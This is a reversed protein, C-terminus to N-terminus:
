AVRNREPTTTTLNEITTDLIRQLAEHTNFAIHPTVIVNPFTLLLHDSILNRLTELPYDKTVIEKEEIIEHEGELVDLGAGGIKGSKLGRILALTDVVGGRATNIIIVGQKMSQIAEDNILHHTQPMYPVHLSIIDSEKFLTPLDVYTFSFEKEAGARPYPDYGLVKMGFGNAIKIANIGIRGTGIVGFTKGKLDSGRLGEMSFNFRTTQEYAQPIKRLLALLLAFAHEAVTNEGYSPVNYVACGKAKAAALDIHDFGTSRTTIIKLAPMQDLLQATVKSYIFVSIADATAAHHVTAESLKEQLFLVQHRQLKQQIYVQEWGELEYFVIKMTKGGQYPAKTREKKEYM